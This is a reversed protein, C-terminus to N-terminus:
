QWSSIFRDIQTMFKRKVDPDYEFDQDADLVLVRRSPKEFWVKDHQDHLQQLYTDDPGDNLVEEGERARLRIRKKVTEISTRLYIYGTPQEITKSKNQFLDQYVQWEIPTMNGNQFHNQAYIDRHTHLSREALRIPKEQPIQWTELTTNFALTQFIFAWRMPDEYYLQFLNKGTNPDIYKTWIDLPEYIIELHDNYKEKMLRLLTSKGSGINGEVVFWVKSPPPPPTLSFLDLYSYLSQM